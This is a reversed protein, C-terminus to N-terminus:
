QNCCGHNFHAHIHGVCGKHHDLMGFAHSQRLQVLQSAADSAAAVCAYANEQILLGQRGDRPLPKSDYEFMRIAELDRMLIQLQPPRPFKKSRALAAYGHQAEGVQFLIPVQKGGRLDCRVFEEM